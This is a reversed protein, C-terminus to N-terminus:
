SGGISKVMMFYGTFKIERYAYFFWEYMDRMYVNEHVTPDIREIPIWDGFKSHRVNACPKFNNKTAILYWDEPDTLASTVVVEAAGMYPNESFINSQYVQSNRVLKRAEVELQTPVLLWLKVNDMDLYRGGTWPITRLTDIASQFPAPNNSSLAGSILNNVPRGFLSHSNSFIPQGDQVLETNAEIKECFRYWLENPLISAKDRAERLLMDRLTPDEADPVRLQLSTSIKQLEVEASELKVDTTVIPTGIPHVRPLSATQLYPIQAKIQDVSVDYAFNSLNQGIQTAQIDQLAAAMEQIVLQSLNRIGKFSTVM